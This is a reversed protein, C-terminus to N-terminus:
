APVVAPVLAAELTIEVNGQLAQSVPCGAKARQAAQLFASADIGAVQGTVELQSRTIKWGGGQPEIAVTAHTVLQDPPHGEQALEEALAMSFCGAHAAAILEEPSTGAEREFRKAFSIPAREFIGSEATAEGRGRRLDGRWIVEARKETM